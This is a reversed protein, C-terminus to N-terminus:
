APGGYARRLYDLAMLIDAVSYRGPWEAEHPRLMRLMALAAMRVTPESMVVSMECRMYDTGLSEVPLPPKAETTM